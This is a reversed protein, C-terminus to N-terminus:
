ILELKQYFEDLRVELRGPEIVDDTCSKLVHENVPDYPQIKGSNLAMKLSSSVTGVTEREPDITGGSIPLPIYSVSSIRRHNYSPLGRPMFEIPTQWLPNGGVMPKVTSTNRRADANSLIPLLLLTAPKVQEDLPLRRVAAVSTYTSSQLFMNNNNWKSWLQELLAVNERNNSAARMTAHFICALENELAILPDRIAGKNKGDCHWIFLDDILSLLTFTKAFYSCSPSPPAFCHERIKLAAAVSFKRNIILWDRTDRFTKRNKLDLSHLLVLLQTCQEEDLAPHAGHAEYHRLVECAKKDDYSNNNCYTKWKYYMYYEGGFLFQFDPNGIQKAKMMREFSEGNRAVFEAMKEIRKRIIPSNPPQSPIVMSYGTSDNPSTGPHFNTTFTNGSNPVPVAEFRGARKPPVHMRM